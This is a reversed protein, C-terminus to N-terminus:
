RVLGPSLEWKWATKIISEIDSYKPRWGLVRKASDANAFLEAPDGPRRDCVSYNVDFNTVNQVTKIVELVSTGTGTGLNFARSIGGKKLFSIALLHADALDSVHVYDRIATGDRTPYDNGYVSVPENTNSLNKLILPIRHTEPNHLEGIESEFDAGAANFYRLSVWKLGHALGCWYLLRECAFKTDGYPNVPVLDTEETIPLSNPSGYVACSSSFILNCEMEVCASLVSQLGSLNNSYYGIPDKYSEGVYASAAFHVVFAPRVEKFIQKLKTTERIDLRHLEGWCVLHEFGTSLNDVTIVEWGERFAAKCFHSGIYGAGGTVIIKRNM